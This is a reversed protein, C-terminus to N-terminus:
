RSLLRGDAAQYVGQHAARSASSVATHTQCAWRAPRVKKPKALSQMVTIQDEIGVVTVLEGFVDGGQPADDPPLVPTLGQTTPIVVDLPLLRVLGPADAGASM